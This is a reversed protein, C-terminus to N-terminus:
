FGKYVEKDDILESFVTFVGDDMVVYYQPRWSTKSYIRYDDNIGICYENSCKWIIQMRVPDM